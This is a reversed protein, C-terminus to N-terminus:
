FRYRLGVQVTRGGGGELNNTATIAGRAPSTIDAVPTAFNPHNFVNIFTGEVRFMRGEGFLEVEKYVGLDQSWRGPGEMSFPGANGFRGNAPIAFADPNFWREITRQGEPIKWDGVVDARGGFRLTNSTDRGSFTPTFFAGTQIATFGSMQWGGVLADLGRHMQGGFMRGKGVPVQWIFQATFRQRPTYPSNGRDARFDFRDQNNGGFYTFADSLDRAWMYSFDFLLGQSFRRSLVATMGHFVQNARFEPYSITRYLPYPTRLRDFPQTSAPAQNLNYTFPLRNAKTGLYSVRATTSQTIQRELTLNWQQVYPTRRNREQSTIALSGPAIPQTAFGAPFMAPLRFLAGNTTVTNDFTQTNTYPGEIPSFLNSNDNAYLGYGARLVTATDGFPRYALGIRPYWLKNNQGILRDPDYGADRALRFPITARVTPAIAQLQEDGPVVIAGSPRDLLFTLNRFKEESEPNREFRLGMSLTLKRSVRYEDQVFWHAQTIRRQLDDVRGLYTSTRPLGYLFDAIGISGGTWAGTFAASGFLGQAEPRQQDLGMRRVLFGAKFTHSGRVWSLSDSFNYVPDSRVPVRPAAFSAIGTISLAPVTAVNPLASPYGTLGLQRVTDAGKLDGSSEDWFQNWGFRAENFLSPSITWNHSASVLAAPGPRVIEGWAPNPPNLNNYDNYRAARVTAALNQKSTIVHDIRASYSQLVTRRDVTENFFGFNADRAVNPKQYYFDLIRGTVAPIQSAPIINNPVPASTFPDRIAALGSLDGRRVKDAPVLDNYQRVIRNIESQIDAFFFTRNKRIPGGLTGGFRHNARGVPATRAFFNRANWANNSLYWWLSGHYEPGGSKSTVAYTTAFAGEATQNMVTYSVEQVADLSPSFNFGGSLGGNTNNVTIGDYTQNTQTNGMGAATWEFNGSAAYTGPFYRGLNLTSLQNYPMDLVKKDTITQNIRPSETEITQSAASVNVRTSVDGLALSVDVRKRAGFSLTVNEVVKTQFGKASVVVEYEGPLLSVIDFSGDSGTTATREVQTATNRVRVEANAVASQSPDAVTGLIAGTFQQSFGRPTAIVLMSLTLAIRKMGPLMAGARSGPIVGPNTGSSDDARDPFCHSTARIWRIRRSVWLACGRSTKRRGEWEDRKAMTYRFTNIAAVPTVNLKRALAYSEAGLDSGLEFLFYRGAVDEGAAAAADLAKRNALVM